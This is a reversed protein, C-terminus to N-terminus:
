GLDAASRRASRRLPSLLRKAARALPLWYRSAPSVRALVRSMMVQQFCQLNILRHGRLISSVRGLLEARSVPADAHGLADGKTILLTTGATTRTQVVRHIIPLGDRVFLIIDGPSVDGIKARHICLIDDPLIWPLMSTGSVRSYVRGRSDLAEPVCSIQTPGGVDSITCRSM